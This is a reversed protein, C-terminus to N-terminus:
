GKLRKEMIAKFEDKTNMITPRLYPRARMKHTGNEVFKSYNLASGVYLVHSGDDVIHAISNRLNGTDVAGIETIKEKTRDEAVIGYEELGVNVQNNLAQLVEKTNDIMDTISIDIKM